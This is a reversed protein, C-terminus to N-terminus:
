KVNNNYEGEVVRWQPTDVSLLSSSRNCRLKRENRLSRRERRSRANKVAEIVGGSFMAITLLFLYSPAITITDRIIDHINTGVITALNYSRDIIARM